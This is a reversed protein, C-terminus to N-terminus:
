ALDPALQEPTLGPGWISKLVPGSPLLPGEDEFLREPEAVVRMDFGGDPRRLVVVSEVLALDFGIDVEENSIVDAEFPIATRSNAPSLLDPQQIRLWDILVIWIMLSPLRWGEISVSLKYELSFNLNDAGANCRVHGDEVWLALRTTERRFEDPFADTLRARLSDPKIM